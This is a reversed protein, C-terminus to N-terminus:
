TSRTSTVAVGEGLFCDLMALGPAAAGRMSRLELPKDLTLEEAANAGTSAECDLWDAGASDVALSTM